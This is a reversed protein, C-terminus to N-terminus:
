YKDFYMALSILHIVVMFLRELYAQVFTNRAVKFIDFHFTSLEFALSVNTQRTLLQFNCSPFHKSGLQKSRLMLGYTDAKYVNCKLQVKSLMKWWMLFALPCLLFNPFITMYFCFHYSHKGVSGQKLLIVAVCVTSNVWLSLSVKVLISM